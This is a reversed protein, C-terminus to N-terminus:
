VQHSSAPGDLNEGRLNNQLWQAIQQQRQLLQRMVETQTVIFQEQITM